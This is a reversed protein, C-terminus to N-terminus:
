SIKQNYLQQTEKSPQQVTQLSNLAINTYQEEENTNDKNANKM